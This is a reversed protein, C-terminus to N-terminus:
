YIKNQLNLLCDLRQYVFVLLDRPVNKSSKKLSEVSFMFELLTMLGFLRDGLTLNNCHACTPHVLINFYKCLIKSRGLQVGIVTATTKRNFMKM